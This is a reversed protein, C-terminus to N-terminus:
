QLVATANLEAEVMQEPQMTWHELVRVKVTGGEQMSSDSIKASSGDLLATGDVAACAIPLNSLV